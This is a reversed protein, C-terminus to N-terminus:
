ALYHAPASPWDFRGRQSSVRMGVFPYFSQQFQNRLKAILGVDHLDGITVGM